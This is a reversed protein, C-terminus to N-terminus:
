GNFCILVSCDDCSPWKCTHIGNPFILSLLFFDPHLHNENRIEKNLGSFSFIEGSTNAREWNRLPLLSVPKHTTM